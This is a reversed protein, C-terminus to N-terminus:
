ITTTEIECCRRQWKNAKDRADELQDILWAIDDPSHAILDLNHEKQGHVDCDESDVYAILGRYPVGASDILDDYIGEGRRWPGPTAKALRTKIETLRDTM